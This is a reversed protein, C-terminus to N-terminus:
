AEIWWRSPTRSGREDTSSRLAVGALTLAELDRRITRESVTHDHALTRRNRKLTEMVRLVRVLTDNRM